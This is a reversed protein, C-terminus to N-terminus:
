KKNNDCNFRSNPTKATTYNLTSTKQSTVSNNPSHNRINWLFMTHEDELNSIDIFFKKKCSKFRLGSVCHHMDCRLLGSNKYDFRKSTTTLSGWIVASYHLLTDQSIKTQNLLHCVQIWSHKCITYQLKM